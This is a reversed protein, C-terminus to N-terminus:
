WTVISDINAGGTCTITVEHKGEKLVQSIFCLSDENNEKLKISKYEKGDINVTFNRGLGISSLIGLRTGEFSFQLIDGKTGVYVHGFSSSM